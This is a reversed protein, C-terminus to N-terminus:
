SNNEANNLQEFLTNNIEIVYQPINDFMKKLNMEEIGKKVSSEVFKMSKDQCSYTEILQSTNKVGPDFLKKAKKPGIGPIQICDM